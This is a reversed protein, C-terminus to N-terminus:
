AEVLATFFPFISLRSEQGIFGFNYFLFIFCISCVSGLVSVAIHYTKERKFIYLLCATFRRVAGYFLM